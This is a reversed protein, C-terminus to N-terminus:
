ESAASPVAGATRISEQLPLLLGEDALVKEALERWAGCLPRHQQLVHGLGRIMLGARVIFIYDEVLDMDSIPDKAELAETFQAFNYPSLWLKDDRGYYVSAM